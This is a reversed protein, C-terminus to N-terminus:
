AKGKKGREDSCRLWSRREFTRRGSRIAGGAHVDDLHKRLERQLDEVHSDFGHESSARLRDIGIVGAATILAVTFAGIAALENPDLGPNVAADWMAKLGFGFVASLGMKFFDLFTFNRKWFGKSESEQKSGETLM